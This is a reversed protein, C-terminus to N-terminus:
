ISKKRQIWKLSRCRYKQGMKAAYIAVLQLSMTGAHVYSAVRAHQLVPPRQMQNLRSLRSIGREVGLRLRFFFEPLRRNMNHGQDVPRVLQAGLHRRCAAEKADTDFEGDGTLRLIRARRPVLEATEEMLGDFEENSIRASSKVWAILPLESAGDTLLRGGRGYYKLKKSACYNLKAGPDRMQLQNDLLGQWEDWGGFPVWWFPHAQLVLELLFKVQAWHDPRKLKQVFRRYAEYSSMPDAGTLLFSLGPKKKFDNFMHQTSAYGWLHEFLFIKLQNLPRYKRYAWDKLFTELPALDLREFFQSMAPLDLTFHKLCKQTNLHSIIPFGDMLLDKLTVLRYYVMLRVLQSEIHHWVDEGIRELFRSLTSAWYTEVPMDLIDQWKASHNVHDLADTFTQFGALFYFILFRLQFHHCLPPHGTSAKARDVLPYLKTLVPKMVQFFREIEPFDCQAWAVIKPALRRRLERYLLFILLLHECFGILPLDLLNGIM